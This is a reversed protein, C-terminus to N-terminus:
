PAPEVEAVLCCSITEVVRLGPPAQWPVRSPRRRVFVYRAGRARAVSALTVLPVNAAELTRRPSFAYGYGTVFYTDRSRTLDDLLVPAQPLSAGARELLRMGPTPGIPQRLQRVLSPMSRGLVDVAGLNADLAAVAQVVAAATVATAVVRGYLGM